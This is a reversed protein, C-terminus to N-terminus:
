DRIYGYRQIIALAEPSCLFIAFKDALAKRPSASVVCGAQVIVPAQPVPLYCGKKGEPSLASSLACFGADVSSTSAYQFAQAIDQPFVLRPQVADWLQAQQLAQKAAAGYPATEPNALALKAVDTRKIISVWDKAACLDKRATWLVVKGKAYIFPTQALRQAALKKPREEDASLFLDFPAGSAIQAYLKGSSSFTAEVKVGTKAQYQTTLEEFPAIFNAAVAVKLTDDALSPSALILILWFALIIHARLM